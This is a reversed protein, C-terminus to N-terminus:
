RHKWKYKFVYKSSLIIKAISLYNLKLKFNCALDTSNHGVRHSGIPQLGGSEETLPIRWALISSHTATGEELTDKWGLSKIRM